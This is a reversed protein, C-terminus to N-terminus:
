PIPKSQKLFVFSPAGIINFKKVLASNEPSMEDINVELRAFKGLADSVERNRFTTKDMAKCAKCSKGTFEILIPKSDRKAEELTDELSAHWGERTGDGKDLLRIATIAYFIAFIAILIGFAQRVRIMWNGPRPLRALGIALLPWPLAMGLGLFFPLLLALRQGQSYLSTALLMAWILVPAVCASALLATVGGMIFVGTTSSTKGRSRWRSLDISFLDFLSLALIAFIAAVTFNFAPSSNISGFLSGTLVTIVGLGGYALMMGCSYVTSRSLVVARSGNAAGIIALNIPILPLVCPTCNLLAGLPILFLLAIVFGYRHFVKELPNSYDGAIGKEVMSCLELFRSASQYGNAAAAIDFTDLDHTAESKKDSVEETELRTVSNKGDFAFNVAAPMYCVGETCAQYNVTFTFPRQPVAYKFIVTGTYEQLDPSPAQLKETRIEEPFMVSVSDPYVVAGNDISFSIEIIPLSGEDSVAVALKCVEAHVICWVQMGLLLFPVFFKM